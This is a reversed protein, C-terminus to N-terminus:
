PSTDLCEKLKIGLMESSILGCAREENAVSLERMRRGSEEDQGEMLCEELEELVMQEFGNFALQDKQVRSVILRFAPAKRTGTMRELDTMRAPLAQTILGRHDWTLAKGDKLAKVAVLIEAFARHQVWRGAEHEVQQEPVAGAGPGHGGADAQGIGPDPRNFQRTDVLSAIARRAFKAGEGDGDDVVRAYASARALLQRGSHQARWRM